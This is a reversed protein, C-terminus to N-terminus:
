KLILPLYTNLLTEFWFGISAWYGVPPDLMGAQSQGITSGLTFPESIDFSVGGSSIVHRELSLGARTEAAAVPRGLKLVSLLLLLTLVGFCIFLRKKM